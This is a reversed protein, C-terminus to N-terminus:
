LQFEDLLVQSAAFCVTFQVAFGAFVTQFVTEVTVWVQVPEAHLGEFVLVYLVVALM